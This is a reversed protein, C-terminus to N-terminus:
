ANKAIAVAVFDSLHQPFYGADTQKDAEVPACEFPVQGLSYAKLVQAMVSTSGTTVTFKEGSAVDTIDLVLFWGLGEAYDSPVKKAANVRIRQGLFNKLGDAKGWPTDLEEVNNAQMIQRLIGLEDGGGDPILSFAASLGFGEADARTMLGTQGGIIVEQGTKTATAM